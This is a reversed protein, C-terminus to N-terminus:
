SAESGRCERLSRELENRGGRERRGQNEEEKRVVYDFYTWGANVLAVSYEDRNKCKSLDVGLEAAAAKVAAASDAMHWSGFRLAKEATKTMGDIAGDVKEMARAWIPDNTKEAVFDVDDDKKWAKALDCLSKFYAFLWSFYHDHTVEWSQRSYRQILDVIESKQDKRNFSCERMIKRKVESRVKVLCTIRKFVTM